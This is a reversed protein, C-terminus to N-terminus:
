FNFLQCMELGVTQVLYAGESEGCTGCFFSFMPVELGMKSHAQFFQRFFCFKRALAHIVWVAATEPGAWLHAAGCRLWQSVPWGQLLPQEWVTAFAFRFHNEAFYAQCSCCVFLWGSGICATKAARLLHGTVDEWAIGTQFVSYLPCMVVIFLLSRAEWFWGRGKDGFNGLTVGSFRSCGRLSEWMGSILM